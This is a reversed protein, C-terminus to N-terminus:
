VQFIHNGVFFIFDIQQDFEANKKMLRQIGGSGRVWIFASGDPDLDPDVSSISIIIYRAATIRGRSYLKRGQLSYFSGLNYSKHGCESGKM